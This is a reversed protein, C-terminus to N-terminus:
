KVKFSISSTQHGSNDRVYWTYTKKVLLSVNLSTGATTGRAVGDVYVTYSTAGPSAGWSFGISGPSFEEGDSPSTGQFTEGAHTVTVTDEDSAQYLGTDTVLAKVTHSGNSTPTYPINYTDSGVNANTYIIQDDYYVQLQPTGIGTKSTGFSGLTVKAHFTYPGGGSAGTLSVKPMVDNCDHLNDEETPLATGNTAFGASQLGKLWYQYQFSNEKQTVEPLVASSYATERALQPTCATALKGSVKDVEATKDDLGSMPVYWSPFLDTIKNKTASTVARGTDKDLEVMKLGEPREFADTATKGIAADMYSRWIPAAINAAAQQMPANNNNGVWVGGVLDPTFGMTWADNFHETTGTKSAAHVCNKASNNICIHKLDLSTGFVQRKAGTDSMVDAILAAVQPDLVQKPKKPKTNDELVNNKQDIIKLIPKQEYHQGGNAFSEYANAMDVLKVEGSGLVLSLGYHDAGKDLTTIGLSHATAISEETGAMVLAKVAPINLSGALSSRVTQVNRFVNGFNQPISPTGDANVGFQTKVDYLVTGPGYTSCTRNKACAADKNKSFLTAYVFPKFSSGPQRQSTAVNTAGFKPDSYNYSGVMALLQGTKPDTSVLAANSGGGSRVRAMNDAVAKEAAQQKGWDLTTIVKLGGETVQKVTYHDENYMYQQIYDIFHPAKVNAYLNQQGQFQGAGEGPKLVDVAKAEDAQAKTIYGQQAMLDIIYQQRALLADVHSGYPSYYSPARPIAALLAAQPLTLNKADTKFYTQAASQIGYARSGYPIENLYLKLIDDKSYFQEIEIAMILEKIKRSLSYEDTLLANKVYQQTITSGGGKSRDRLIVGTLARGIGFISYAGHKYFDKDEIAITAQKVNTPIQDFGIVTRNKDGYLEFLVTGHGPNDLEDRAYFKTTQASIRANIKSPSPLDKAYWLFVLFVFLVGVGGLKLLRIMGARSLWYARFHAPTFSLGFRKVHGLLGKTQNEIPKAPRRRVKRIPM